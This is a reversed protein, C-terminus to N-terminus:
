KGDDPSKMVAFNIEVIGAETITYMVKKLTLFDLDKDAQITVKRFGDIEQEIAKDGVKIKEVATKIQSTLAKKDAEGKVIMQQLKEKLPGLEWDTQGKVQQFDMLKDNNLALGKESVIVVNAPKLEKVERADPLKVGEPIEIVEGTTAYNQLLFVVLVTFLDVMATLSLVAVVSRKTSARRGHRDRIGPIQIAM